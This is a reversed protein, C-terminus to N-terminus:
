TIRGEERLVLLQRVRTQVLLTSALSGLIPLVILAIRTGNWSAFTDDRALAGVVAALFGAAISITQAASWFIYNRRAAREYWHRYAELSHAIFVEAAAKPTDPLASM